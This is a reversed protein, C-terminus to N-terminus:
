RHEALGRAVADQLTRARANAPELALITLLEQHADEYRGQEYSFEALEYRWRSCNPERLLAARYAELAEAPQGLKRHITARTHLDEASPPGPQRELLRLAHELMPRRAEEPDPGIASAAALLVDIREPLVHRIIGQPDLHARSRELIQPLYGRSLALTHRWSAWAREPRGDALEFLGCRYWIDPDGPALLKARELYAARPEAAAFDKVHGALIMHIEARLPSLDRSRLFHRLAPILHAHELRALASDSRGPKALRAMPQSLANLHEFALESHLLANEPLVRAAADLCAVRRELRDPDSSFVWGYSENRLQDARYTRWAEHGVVLCFSVALAAGLAAAPWGQRLITPDGEPEQPLAAGASGPGSESGLGCLLASLVAVLAACAPIHMAFDCTSHITVTVFGTLAGLALWGERRGGLRWAAQVGCRGVLFVALIGPILQALGGEVLMELYDNHAHDVVMGADTTTTRYLREAIEYTGAGTGWLPFDRVLPLSRAWIELRDDRLADPGRLTALRTAVQNYGHWSVLAAAVGLVLFVSGGALSRRLRVLWAFLVLLGGLLAVFGGRSLCFVVGSIMLALAFTMGLLAPDLLVGSLLSSWSARRQGERRTPLGCGGTRGPARAAIRGLLLGAGLGVCVNTYFAFHNRNIFPGFPSGPTEYVWYVTGPQASFVQVLGFLALLAGNALAAFGLHELGAAPAVNNRVVTFLLLLTLTRGAAWRTVGPDISLTTGAHPRAAVLPEGAPLTEPKEPLLRDYMRATAPSLAHLLGWPLPVVQALGVLVMAALCAVVPCKRWALQGELLLRVGWLAMLLAVGVDLLFEYRPPTGAFGWPALCVLLLAGAEIAGAAVRAARPRAATGEPDRKAGVAAGSRVM